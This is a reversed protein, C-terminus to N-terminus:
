PVPQSLPVPVPEALTEFGPVDVLFEKAQPEPLVAIGIGILFQRFGRRVKNHFQGGSVHLEELLDRPLFESRFGM